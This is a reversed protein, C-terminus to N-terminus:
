RRRWSIRGNKLAAADGIGCGRSSERRHKGHNTQETVHRRSRISLRRWGGKASIAASAAMQHQQRAAAAMKRWSVGCALWAGRNGCLSGGNGGRHRRKAKLGRRWQAKLVGARLM